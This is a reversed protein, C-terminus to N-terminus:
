VLRRPLPELVLERILFGDEVIELCVIHILLFLDDAFPGAV